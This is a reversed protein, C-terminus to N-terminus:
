IRRKIEKIISKIDKQEKTAGQNFSIGFYKYANSELLYAIGKMILQNESYEKIEKKM